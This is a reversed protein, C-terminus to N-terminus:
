WIHKNWRFELTGEWNIVQSQLKKYGYEKLDAHFAEMVLMIGSEVM